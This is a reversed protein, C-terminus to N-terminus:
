EAKLIILFSLSLPQISNLTCLTVLCYISEFSYQSGDMNVRKEGELSNPYFAKNCLQICEKEKMSCGDAHL